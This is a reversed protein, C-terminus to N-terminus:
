WLSTESVKQSIKNVIVLLLFNIVSNFLGVATSFSIQGQVLGVKYVYTSIVESASLNLNNQMLYVKEYGVNMIQGCNMILLIIITPAIGPIDIHIMKKIRSAGDIKAAEYLDPSIGALAAIYIIANYGMGQWVGSWVYISQFMSAEGMFNIPTGGLAKILSNVIGMHPDLIQTIISVMVVTSIFHPAYTITQITKKLRQHSVENLFLALIIPVPFGAILSYLSIGLTNKLLTVFNPSLIFQKFYKLGAWESGWIGQRVNYDKFAIIAGGMPIYHFTIVYVLPLLLLLYIQWNKLIRKRIFQSYGRHKVSNTQM